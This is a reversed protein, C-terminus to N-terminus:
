EAPAKLYGFGFALLATLAAAAEPPMEVSALADLVWVLLTATAGGLATAIVKSVPVYSTTM